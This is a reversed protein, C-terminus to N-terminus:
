PKGWPDVLDVGTHEFDKSNRTACVAGHVRCIAAIQADAVSIPRGSKSRVAVIEDYRDAAADDFPLVAQTDRYPQVATRVAVELATRRSGSPLLRVGTLLEALTVATIAVGDSLSENWALVHPDPDPRLLESVVNTDLLIM